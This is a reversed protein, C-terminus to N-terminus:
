RLRRRLHASTRDIVLTLLTLCLLTTVVGPYDFSSLQENLVRGLGGAGVLGVVVTARLCVEWRYFMYALCRPLARPLVGYLFVQAASAGQAQLARLPRPDLNEHIEAMLRGLVGLNYLGLAIAGPLVGPFLLFLVLLAWIAESLARTVLLTGRALGLVLVGRLRGARPGQREEVDLLGGPLAFSTAAPFSVLLGGAGALAIALVSMALTEISLPVLRNVLAPDLRPPWADRLVGGLLELTRASFLRAVDARVYWFSLPVLLAAGLLSGQVVPDRGWSMALARPRKAALHGIHLDIRNTLQLRRHLLSSWADTFGGLLLLAYLFTWIQGYQLSQLSLLIQYGLGGAGILGLVAAARLACEFRYFAYSLLDPFAQPLIGYLFAALPSAGSARLADCAERPTEDFIEGFVKATIAGFPLAIALVAVIPDLGLINILFLGWIMEHIARPIALLARTTGWLARRLLPRRTGEHATPERWLVESSLAGGVLGILLALSTGCVAFALTIFTSELALLTTDRSLDPHVAARLFQWVLPWGSRNILPRPEFVGAIALSAGLAVAIALAYLARPTFRRPTTLGRVAGAHARVPGELEPSM